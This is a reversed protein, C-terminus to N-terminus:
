GEKVEKWDKGDVCTLLKGNKKYNGGYGTKYTGPIYVPDTDKLPRGFRYPYLSCELDTCLEIELFSNGACDLCQRRIAKWLKSKSIRVKAM